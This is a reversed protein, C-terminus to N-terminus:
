KMEPAGGGMHHSLVVFTGELSWGWDEANAGAAARMGGLWCIQQVLGLKDVWVGSATGGKRPAEQARKCPRAQVRRAQTTCAEGASARRRTERGVPETGVAGGQAQPALSAMPRRGAQGVILARKEARTGVKCDDSAKKARRKNAVCAWRAAGQAAALCRQNVRQRVATQKTGGNPRGEGSAHGEGQM